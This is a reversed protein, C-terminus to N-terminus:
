NKKKLILPTLFDCGLRHGLCHVYEIENKANRSNKLYVITDFDFINLDKSRNVREGCLYGFLSYNRPQIEAPFSELKVEVSRYRNEYKRLTITKM